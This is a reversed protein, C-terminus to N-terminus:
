KKQIRMLELGDGKRVVKELYKVLQVDNNQYAFVSDSANNITVFTRKFYKPLKSNKDELLHYIRIGKKTSEIYSYNWLKPYEENNQTLMYYKGNVLRLFIKEDLEMREISNSDRTIIEKSTIEFFVTDTTISRKLFSKPMRIFYSGQINEPFRSQVQGPQGDFLAAKCSALLLILCVYVIKQQM